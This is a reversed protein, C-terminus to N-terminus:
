TKWPALRGSHALNLVLDADVSLIRKRGDVPQFHSAYEAAPAEVPAAEEECGRPLTLQAEPRALAAMPDVLNNVPLHQGPRVLQGDSGAFDQFSELSLRCGPFRSGSRRMAAPLFQRDLRWFKCHVREDRASHIVPMIRIRHTRRGCRRIRMNAHM